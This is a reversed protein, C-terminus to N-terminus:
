GLRTIRARTKLLAVGGTNQFAEFYLNQNAFTSRVNPSAISGRDEGVVISVRQLDASIPAFGLNLFTRATAPAYATDGTNRMYTVTSVAYIGPEVLVIIGDTGPIAFSSNTSFAADISFVGLLQPSGSPDINKQATFEAHSLALRWNSNDYIYESKTDIQYGRSGQMMGTQDIRESDNGWVFDYRERKSLAAQVSDGQTQSAQVFSGPDQLTWKAINDPSTLQTM